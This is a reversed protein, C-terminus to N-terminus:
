ASDSEFDAIMNRARILDRTGFGEDFKRYTGALLDRAEPARGHGRWLRALRMAARLEWSLASQVRAIELARLLKAEAATVANPAAHWLLLEADVRLLEPANWSVDVPELGPLPVAINAGLALDALPPARATDLRPEIFSAILAERQNGEHLKLMRTYCVIWQEARQNGEAHAALLDVQRRVEEIAGTLLAVPAGAFTVAYIVPFSHGSDQAKVTAETAAATAQDPYGLLWLIRALLAGIAVPTEVQYGIGSTPDFHHPRGVAREAFERAIV